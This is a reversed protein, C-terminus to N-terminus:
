NRRSFLGDKSGGRIIIGLETSSSGGDREIGSPGDWKGSLKM